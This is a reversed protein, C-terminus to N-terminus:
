QKGMLKEGLTLQKKETNLYKEFNDIKLFHTPTAQNNNLVWENKIFVNFAHLFDDGNHVKILEDLNQKDSYSLRNFKSQKFGNKLRGNNFWELFKESTFNNNIEKKNIDIIIDNENEIYNLMQKFWKSVEKKIEEKDLDKYDDINFQEKIQKAKQKSVNNASLLGGLTASAIKYPIYGQRKDMEVSLRESYYDGNENKEFKNLVDSSANPLNISLWKSSIYGKQHQICLMTIYQGREEFTLDAVGTLFDQSYFLFAPDKSM